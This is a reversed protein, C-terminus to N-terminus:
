SGTAGVEALVQSADVQPWSSRLRLGEFHRRSGNKVERVGPLDRLRAYVEAPKRQHMDSDRSWDTYRVMIDQRSVRAGADLDCCEAVFDALPDQDKRYISLDAQMAPSVRLAAYGAGDAHWRMAGAVLMALVASRAAPDFCLTGKLNPDRQDLPVSVKPGIFVLRRFLAEDRDNAGPPFNTALFLTAQMEFTIPASYLPRATIRENGGVIRKLAAANLRARDDTENCYAFRRGQLAAVEPTARGSADTGLFLEPQATMAYDGLTARIAEFLTGKGCDPPGVVVGIVKASTDGTAAMGLVRELSDRTAADQNSLHQLVVDVSPHRAAPMFDTPALMTLLDSPNHPRLDGTRLDVTGNRVNLLYRHRDFDSASIAATPAAADLLGTTGHASVLRRAVQGVQRPAGEQVELYDTMLALAYDSAWAKATLKDQVWRTGDFCMWSERERCFRLRWLNMKGFQRAAEIENAPLQRRILAAGPLSRRSNFANMMTQRLRSEDWPPQCSQNWASLLPWFVEPSLAYDGGLCCAKYTHDHGGQHEVAPGLARLADACWVDPTGQSQQDDGNVRALATMTPPFVPVSVPLLPQTPRGGRWGLRTALREIGARLDALCIAAPEGRAGGHWERVEGSPHVSPPVVVQAGAAQFDIGCRKGSAVKGCDYRRIGVFRPLKGADMAERTAGSRPLDDEAFESDTIRYWRHTRPASARGEVMGTPPLHQDALDAPIGDLDVCVVGGSQPGTAIGVNLLGGDPMVFRGPDSVGNLPWGIDVPRKTKPDIRLLHFGASLMEALAKAYDQQDM